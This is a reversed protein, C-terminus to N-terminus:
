WRNTWFPHNENCFPDDKPPLTILIKASSCPPHHSSVYAPFKETIPSPPDLEDSHENIKARIMQIESRLFEVTLGEAIALWLLHFLFEAFDKVISMAMNFTSGM